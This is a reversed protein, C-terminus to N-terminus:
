AVERKAEKRVEEKTRGQNESYGYEREADRRMKTAEELCKSRGVRIQGDETSIRVLWTGCHWSVGTVGSSNDKRRTTNRQNVSNDVDRLNNWRNNLSDQDEHDIMNEPWEGTMWAWAVRHALYNKGDPLKLERRFYDRNRVKRVCGAEKGSYQSNFNRAGRATWYECDEENRREWILIGTEPDYDLIEWLVEVAFEISKKRGM